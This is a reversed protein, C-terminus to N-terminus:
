SIKELTLTFAISYFRPYRPFPARYIKIDKSRTSLKKARLGFKRFYDSSPEVKKRSYNNPRGGVFWEDPIEDPTNTETIHIEGKNALVRSAEQLFPGMSDDDVSGFVNNYILEDVSSNGFPLRECEAKIPIFRKDNGYQEKEWKAVDWNNEKEWLKNVSIYIENEKIGREACFAAPEAESGIEVVIRKHTTRVIAPIKTFLKKLKRLLDPFKGDCFVAQGEESDFYAGIDAVVDPPTSSKEMLLLYIRIMNEVGWEPAIEFIFRFFEPRASQYGKPVYFNDLLLGLKIIDKEQALKRLSETPTRNNCIIAIKLELDSVDTAGYAAALHDGADATGGLNMRNVIESILDPQCNQNQVITPLWKLRVDEGNLRKEGDDLPIPDLAASRLFDPDEMAGMIGLCDKESKSTNWWNFIFQIGTMGEPISIEEIKKNDPAM